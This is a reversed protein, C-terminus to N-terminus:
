NQGAMENNVPNIYILSLQDSRSGNTMKLRHFCRDAGTLSSFSASHKSCLAKSILCLSLTLVSEAWDFLTESEFHRIERKIWNFAQM